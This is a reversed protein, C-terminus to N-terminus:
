HHRTTEGPDTTHGETIGILGTEAVSRLATESCTGSVLVGRWLKRFGHRDLHILQGAAHQIRSEVVDAV